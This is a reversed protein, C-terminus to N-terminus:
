APRLGMRAALRAILSETYADLDPIVGVYHGFLEFSVHGFIESWAEIGAVLASRLERGLGLEDALGAFQPALADREPDSPMSRGATAADVLVRTLLLGVQSAPEVTTQPARYGVVPTGYILAYRHPNRRAWDRVSRVIVAFREVLDARPVASEAEAVAAGLSLYCQVILDTLLADRSPYYRYIASSVVGLRRAIARLSLADAGAEALSEAAADLVRERSIVPKRGRLSPEAM